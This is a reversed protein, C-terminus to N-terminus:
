SARGIAWSAFLLWLVAFALMLRVPAATSRDAAWRIDEAKSPLPRLDRQGIEGPEFIVKAAEPDPDSFGKRLSWIFVLLATVALLFSSLLLTATNMPRGARAPLRLSAPHICRL